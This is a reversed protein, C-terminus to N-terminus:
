FSYKAKMYFMNSGALPSGFKTDDRGFYIFAGLNLETNEIANIILNPYIVGSITTGTREVGEDDVEAVGDADLISLDEFGLIVSTRAIVSENFLKYDNVLVVFHNLDDAGFEDVFGYLYQVNMYWYRTISYDMGAAAKVFTGGELTVESDAYGLFETLDLELSLEEHMYLAVEGWLGMGGLFDLSTSFHGGAMQIRPFQLEVASSVLSGSVLTEAAGIMDALGGLEQLTVGEILGFLDKLSDGPVVEGNRLQYGRDPETLTPKLKAPYPIDSFGKYYMFGLSVGLLNMGMHAGYQVNQGLLRPTKVDVDFVFEGGAGAFAPALSAMAELAPSNAQAALLETNQFAVLGSEPIVSTRFVPVAVASLTFEDFLTGHEGEVYWPATWTLVAMENAVRDGFKIPDELDLANVPNTPNFQDASGWEVIQRGLKLDLGDILLDYFEVYLADSEFRYGDILRRDIMDELDVVQSGGFFVLKLDATAGAYDGGWFGRYGLTNELRQIKNWVQGEAENPHAKGPIWIRLDSEVYGASESDAHAVSQFLMGACLLALAGTKLLGKFNMKLM